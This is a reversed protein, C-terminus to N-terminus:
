QKMAGIIDDINAANEHGSNKSWMIDSNLKEMEKRIMYGRNQAMSHAKDLSRLYEKLQKTASKFYNEKKQLEVIEPQIRAHAESSKETLGESKAQLFYFDHRSQRTLEANAYLEEAKTAKSSYYDYWLSIEEMYKSLTSDNFQLRVPDLTVQEDVLDIVRVNDVPDTM